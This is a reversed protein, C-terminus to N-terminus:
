ENQTTRLDEQMLSYHSAHQEQQQAAIAALLEKRRIGITALESEVRGETSALSAETVAVSLEKQRLLERTLEQLIDVYSDREAQLRTLEKEGRALDRSEPPHIAEGVALFHALCAHPLPPLQEQAFDNWFREQRYIHRLLDRWSLEGWDRDGHTDWRPIRLAPIGLLSLIYESFHIAHVVQGNVRVKSRSGRGRWRREVLYEEGGIHILAQASEYKQALESGFASEPTDRDGMLYDFMRLWKTKGSDRDGVIVNVGPRFSLSDGEDNQPFRTMRVIQLAKSSM